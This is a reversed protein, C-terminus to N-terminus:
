LVHLPLGQFIETREYRSLHMFPAAAINRLFISNRSIEFLGIDMNKLAVARSSTVGNNCQVRVFRLNASTLANTLSVLEHRDSASVASAWYIGFGGTNCARKYQTNM